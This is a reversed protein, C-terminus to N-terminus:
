DGSWMKIVLKAHNTPNWPNWSLYNWPTEQNQTKNLEMNISRETAQIEYNLHCRLISDLVPQSDAFKGCHNDFETEWIGDSLLHYKICLVTLRTKKSGPRISQNKTSKTVWQIKTSYSGIKLQRARWNSDHPFKETLQPVVGQCIKNALFFQPFPRNEEKGKYFNWSISM